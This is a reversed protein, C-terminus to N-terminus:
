VLGYAQVLDIFYYAGAKVSRTLDPSNFDVRLLGYLKPQPGQYPSGWEYNDMLSWTIYGRVDCGEKIAQLMAYLSRQYFCTRTTDDDNLPAVGNETVYIPVPRKLVAFLPASMRASLEKIAAYLGEPYMRYNPNATCSDPQQTRDPAFGNMFGNSYYNLGIWDLSKPANMNRHEVLAKTPLYVKFHGKTFFDFVCENTLMQAVECGLQSKFDRSNSAYMQYINKLFGIPVTADIKKLAQYTQVHAELMNKLVVATQQIDGQIGPPTSGILYGKSAYGSPSNFTSIMPCVHEDSVDVFVHKYLYGYVQQSFRVFYAINNESAFGGKDMFWCPDTYHHLEILPKIGSDVLTKCVQAYHELVDTDFQGDRPEVKAWEISFRYTNLGLQEKMIRIDDACKNWHDCARGSLAQIQAIDQKGCHDLEWRSWACTQADCGGEVQHASTGAGWLFHAPVMTKNKSLSAHLQRAITRSSLDAGQWQWGLPQRKHVINRIARLICYIFPTRNMVISVPVCSQLAYWWSMRTADMSNLMLTMNLLFVLSIRLTYRYKIM